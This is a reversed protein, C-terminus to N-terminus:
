VTDVPIGLRERADKIRRGLLDVGRHDFMVPPVLILDPVPSEQLYRIAAEEVDQLTLLGACRINGGFFANDAAILSCAFPINSGSILERLLPLAMHSTIILVKGAHNRKAATDIQKIFDPDIDYSVIFGPSCNRVKALKLKLEEVGRRLTLLPNISRYVRDFGDVRTIVRSDNVELLIDGEQMGAAAAPSLPIIGEMRCSLDEALSPEIIVPVSHMARLSRLWELLQRRMGGLDDVRGSLHTYGPLFARVSEAGCADLLLVMEEVDKKTLLDPVAVFSGSFRLRGKLLELKERIDAPRKEGLLQRRKQQDVCNVSLNLEINRLEAMKDVLDRTLLLGNTTIQIKTDSYRARIRRVIEFFDKHLLPEGEIIRSASEGVIIKKDPSLFDILVTFDHLELRPM